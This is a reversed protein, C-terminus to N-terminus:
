FTLIFPDPSKKPNFCSNERPSDSPKKSSSAFLKPQGSNHYSNLKRV